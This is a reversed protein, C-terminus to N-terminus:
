TVGVDNKSSREANPVIKFVLLFSTSNEFFLSTLPRSTSSFAPISIELNSFSILSYAGFSAIV